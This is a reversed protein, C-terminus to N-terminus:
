ELDDDPPFDEPKVMFQTLDVQGKAEAEVLKIRAELNRVKVILAEFKAAMDDRTKPRPVEPYGLQRQLAAFLYLPDRGRNAKAIQGEKEGFLAPLPPEYDPAQRRQDTVYYQSRLYVLDAFDVVGLQRRVFQAYEKWEADYMADQAVCELGMEYGLRNRSLAELQYVFLGQPTPQGSRYKAERELILLGMEISFRTREEETQEMVFSQFSSFYHPLLRFGSSLLGTHKIETALLQIAMPLRTTSLIEEHVHGLVEQTPMQEAVRERLIRFFYAQEVYEERELVHDM